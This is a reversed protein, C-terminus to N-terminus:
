TMGIRVRELVASGFPKFILAPKDFGMYHTLEGNLHGIARAHCKAELQAAVPTDMESYRVAQCEEILAELNQILCYDTDVVVPILELKALATVTVEPNDGTGGCCDLPLADLYYRRYSATTEGPQMELLLVQEGTTPDVQFIQIFGNTVDKQIGTITNFQMPATAYPTAFEVWQGTVQVLGDQSVIVNGSNDTGQLLVRRRSGVDASDTTFIRIFQPANSLDTFTPVCNRAYATRVRNECLRSSWAKPLRGNGFDLYEYFQNQVDVPMTCVDIKELRAVERPCTIYPNDRSVIFAMEAWTGWWGEDAAEKAMLLRRQASNVLQAIRYIDSACAGVAAPGRSLRFDILRTRQM